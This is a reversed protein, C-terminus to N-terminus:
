FSGFAKQANAIAEQAEHPRSMAAFHYIFPAQVTTRDNVARLHAIALNGSYPQLQNLIQSQLHAYIQGLL